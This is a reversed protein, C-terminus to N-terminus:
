KLFNQLCSLRIIIRLQTPSSLRIIQQRRPSVSREHFAKGSRGASRKTSKQAIHGYDKTDVFDLPLFRGQSDRPRTQAFLSLSRSRNSSRSRLRRPQKRAQGRSSRMSALSSRSRSARARRAFAFRRHCPM